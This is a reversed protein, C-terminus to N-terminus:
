LVKLRMTLVQGAANQTLSIKRVIFCQVAANVCM